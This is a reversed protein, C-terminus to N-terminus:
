HCSPMPPVAVIPGALAAGPPPWCGPCAPAPPLPNPASTCVLGDDCPGQAHRDWCLGRILQAEKRAQCANLSGPSLMPDFFGPPLQRLLGAVRECLALALAAASPQLWLPAPPIAACCNTSQGFVPHGGLAAAVPPCTPHCCLLCGGGGPWLRSPQLVPSNAVPPIVGFCNSGKPARTHM